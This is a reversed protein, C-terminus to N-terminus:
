KATSNLTRKDSSFYVLHERFITQIEAKFFFFTQSLGGGGGGANIWVLSRETDGQIARICLVLSTESM